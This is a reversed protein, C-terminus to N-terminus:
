SERRPTRYRVECRPTQNQVYRSINQNNRREFNRATSRDTRPAFACGDTVQGGPTHHVASSVRMAATHKSRNAGFRTSALHQGRDVDSALAVKHQPNACHNLPGILNQVLVPLGSWRELVADLQGRDVAISASWMDSFETTGIIRPRQETVLDFSSFGYIFDPEHPDLHCAIRPEASAPAKYLIELGGNGAGGCPEEEDM